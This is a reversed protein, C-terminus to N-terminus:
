PLRSSAPDNLSVYSCEVAYREWHFLSVFKAVGSWSWLWLEVSLKLAFVLGRLGEVGWGRNFVECSEWPVTNWSHWVAKKVICRGGSQAVVDNTNSLVVLQRESTNGFINSLYTLTIDEVLANSPKLALPLSRKFKQGASSQFTEWDPHIRVNQSSGKFGRCIKLM